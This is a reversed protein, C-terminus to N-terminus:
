YLTPTYELLQGLTESFFKIYTEGKPTLSYRPNTMESNKNILRNLVLRKLTTYVGERRIELVGNTAKPVAKVLQEVTVGEKSCNVLVLLIAFEEKSVLNWDLGVESNTRM